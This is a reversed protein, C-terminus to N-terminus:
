DVHVWERMVAVSCEPEGAHLVEARFSDIMCKSVGARCMQRCADSMAVVIDLPRAAPESIKIEPFRPRVAVTM